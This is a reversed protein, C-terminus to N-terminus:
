LSQVQEVRDSWVVYGPREPEHQIVVFVKWDAHPGVLERQLAAEVQPSWFDRGTVCLILAEDGTDEEFLWFDGAGFAGSSGFLSLRQQMRSQLSTFVERPPFITFDQDDEPIPEQRDAYLIFGRQDPRGNFVIYIGWAPFKSKLLSQLASKLRGNWSEPRIMEIKHYLCAYDDDVLWFDADDSTALKGFSSLLSVLEQYLAEWQQARDDM